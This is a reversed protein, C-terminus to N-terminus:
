TDIKKLSKKCRAPLGAYLTKYSDYKEMQEQTLKGVVKAPVGVAISEPPIQQNQRVVCGEGIVSREGVVAYDSITANMGVLGFDKITCNHLVSAHGISVRNGVITEGDPRAHIVCCEQVNSENGIRIKGWDGRIVCNPAIYCNEGIEVDGIVVATESVFATPAIKPRKGEFEYLPM